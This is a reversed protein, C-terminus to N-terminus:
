PRVEVTGTMGRAQHPICILPFTGPKDFTCTLTKPEGGDVGVDIDLGGVTFTHFENEATLVFTVTEGVDFTLQSPDFRYEGSGRPDELNVEVTRSAVGAAAPGASCAQPPPTPTPRPPPGNLPAKLGRLYAILASIQPETLRPSTGNYVAADRCMINGPKVDCPDELWDRLNPQTNELISGAFRDRSAFHTLDPGTQGGARTGDITHCGRCGAQISMFVDHGEIALPDAPALAPAAQAKLWSAFDAETQAVVTFRMNAHSEGCFEACQGLYVGPATAQFWLTNDNRPVMDVKGALKPIWFSHIVDVSALEVNVPRAIPVHLENATIVGLDPYEFEFWWQHGTAIVRLGGEEGPKQPSNANDFITLVSPVAIAILLLTPVITWTIELRTHGEIQEPDGDGPKRRFRVAAYIMAGMVLIFVLLGVWFLIIFLTAQSEAVPGLTDFTSQPHSPTCGALLVAVLASLAVGLLRTPRHGITLM